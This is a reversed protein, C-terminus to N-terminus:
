KTLIWANPDEGHIKSLANLAEERSGFSSYCVPQLRGLKDPTLSANYGKDRLTQVFRSCTELHIIILGEAQQM